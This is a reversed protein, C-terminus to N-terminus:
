VRQKVFFTIRKHDSDITEFEVYDKGEVRKENINFAHLSNTQAGTDVRAKFHAKGDETEIWEVRGILIRKLAEGKSLRQKKIEKKSYLRIENLEPIIENRIVKRLIQEQEDKVQHKCENLEEVAKILENLSDNNAIPKHQCGITFIVFIYAYLTRSM